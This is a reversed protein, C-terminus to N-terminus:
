SLFETGSLFKAVISGGPKPYVKKEANERMEQQLDKDEITHGYFALDMAKGMPSKKGDPNGSDPNMFMDKLNFFVQNYFIGMGDMFYPCYDNASLGMQHRMM